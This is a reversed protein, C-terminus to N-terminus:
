RLWPLLKEDQLKELEAKGASPKFEYIDDGSKLFNREQGDQVVTIWVIANEKLREIDPSFLQLTNNQFHVALMEGGQVHLEARRLIPESLTAGNDSFVLKKYLIAVSEADGGYGMPEEDIIGEDGQAIPGPAPNTKREPEPTFIPDSPATWRGLMFSLLAIIVTALILFNQLRLRAARRDREIFTDFAEAQESSVGQRHRTKLEAMQQARGIAEVVTHYHQRHRRYQDDSEMKRAVEQQEAESLEGEEFRRVEDFINEDIKTM